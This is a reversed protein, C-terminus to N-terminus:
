RRSLKWFEWPKKNARPLARSKPMQEKHLPPMRVATDQGGQFGSMYAVDNAFGYDNYLLEPNFSMDSNHDAVNTKLDKRLLPMKEPVGDVLYGDEDLDYDEDLIDPSTPEPIRVTSCLHPPLSVYSSLTHKLLVESEQVLAERQREDTFVALQSSRVDFLRKVNDVIDEKKEAKTIIEDDSSDRDINFVFTFNSIICLIVAIKLELVKIYREEDFDSLDGYEVPNM